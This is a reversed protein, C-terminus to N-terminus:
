LLPPLLCRCVRFLICAYTHSRNNVCDDDDFFVWTFPKPSLPCTAPKCCLRPVLGGIMHMEKGTETEVPSRKGGFGVRDISTVGV